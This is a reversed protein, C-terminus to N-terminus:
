CSRSEKPFHYSIEHHVAKPPLSVIDEVVRKSDRTRHDNTLDVTLQAVDDRRPPVLLM